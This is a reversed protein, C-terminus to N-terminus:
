RVSILSPEGMAQVAGQSFKKSDRLVGTADPILRAPQTPTRATMDDCRKYVPTGVGAASDYVHAGSADFLIDLGARRAPSYGGLPLVSRGNVVQKYGYKPNQTTSSGRGWISALNWTANTLHGSACRAQRQMGSVLVFFAVNLRPGQANTKINLLTPTFPLVDTRGRATFAINRLAPM